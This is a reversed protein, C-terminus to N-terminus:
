DAHLLASFARPCLFIEPVAPQRAGGICVVARRHSRVAAIGLSSEFRRLLSWDRQWIVYGCLTAAPILVGILGKTLVALAM